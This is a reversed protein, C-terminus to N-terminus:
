LSETALGIKKILGMIFLRLFYNAFVIVYGVTKSWGYGVLNDLLPKVCMSHTGLM